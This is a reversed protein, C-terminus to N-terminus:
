HIVQEQISDKNTQKGVIVKAPRLVRDHLSYGPEIVSIVTDPEGESVEICDMKYPDFKKGLSEAKEVGLSRFVAMAEQLALTLGQDKLHADARELNDVIPLLKEIISATAHLRIVKKEEETRKVLNRYDALVRLYDEKWDEKKQENPTDGIPPTVETVDQVPKQGHTKMRYM